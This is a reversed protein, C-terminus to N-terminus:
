RVASLPPYNIRYITGVPTKFVPVFIKPNASFKEFGPLGSDAEDSSIIVYSVKYSKALSLFGALDSTQQMAALDAQRKPQDVFTNSHTESTVVVKRGTFGSIFVYSIDMNALFVDNISTNKNIWRSIALWNPDYVTRYSLYAQRDALVQLFNTVLPTGYFLFFAVMVFLSAFVIKTKIRRAILSLWYWAGLAMPFVAVLHNFTQWDSPVMLPLISPAPFGFRPGYWKWLEFAEASLGVIFLFFFLIEAKNKRILALVLGTVLFFCNLWRLPGIGFFFFDSKAVIDELYVVGYPNKFQLHYIFLMPLIYPAVLVFSTLVMAFYARWNKTQWLQYVTIGGCLELAAIPQSYIVSAIGIGALVWDVPRDSRSARFYLYAALPILGMALVVPHETMNFNWATWTVSFITLFLTIFTIEWRKFLKFSVFAILLLAPLSTIFPYSIYLTQVSIGSLIHAVAYITQTLIPYWAHEGLYAPDGLFNGKLINYTIANDRQYDGVSTYIWGRTAQWVNIFWFLLLGIVAWFWINKRM